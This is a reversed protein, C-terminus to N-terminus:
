ISKTEQPKKRNRTAEQPKKGEEQISKIILKDEKLESDLLKTRKNDIFTFAGPEPYFAKIKRNIIKAIEGGITEAKKIDNPNIYADETKFKKTYTAQSENQSVSSKIKEALGPIIEILLNGSLEALKKELEKYNHNSIQLERNAIIPGHDIKEDMLFLTTGTKEEGNLIVSQIPTAGRYKPLLSPHVGIVSLEPIALIEKPIIKAYAAVIFIDPKLSLLSSYITSLTEPQFIKVKNARENEGIVKKTPPPTIIKKRGMPKDPNCVIAEPIFGANILKNLIIAAFEPSGFFIFKM